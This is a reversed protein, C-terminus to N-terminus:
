DSGHVGDRAKLNHPAPSHRPLVLSAVLGREEGNRLRLQGQHHRAIDHAISLGLGVGGHLRNRSGEVRYFPALVKVLEGEPLGPGRDRVEICLSDPADILHIQACEGYRVANEILNVLCRRLASAQGMLPAASGVLEVDHGCALHDECISGALAEIDLLVSAEADASGRLYDLTATIMDNMEVIDQQFQRRQEPHELGEARLRLRTLPTRLDHSVAAVFRDRDGLQQRIQAQMQNFVLTAERCEQPGEVQLPPRDIDHGLERAARALRKIPQSLWSAGVWAALVVAALRISIDMLLGLQMLPPPPGFHPDGPGHGHPPAPRLEFMLTLALVHSVLATALLLLALRGFLTAPVMRKFMKLASGM